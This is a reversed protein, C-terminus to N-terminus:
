PKRRKRTPRTPPPDPLPKAEESLDIVAPEIYPSDFPILHSAHVM